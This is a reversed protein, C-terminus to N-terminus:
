LDGSRVARRIRTAASHTLAIVDKVARAESISIGSSPTRIPLAGDATEEEAAVSRGSPYSAVIERVGAKRTM